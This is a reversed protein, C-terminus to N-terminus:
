WLVDVLVSVWVAACLLAGASFGAVLLWFRVPRESRVMRATTDSHSIAGVRLGLVVTRLLWFSLGWTVVTVLVLRLLPM